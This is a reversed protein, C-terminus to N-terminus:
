KGEVPYPVSNPVSSSGSAFSTNLMSTSSSLSKEENFAHLSLIDSRTDGSESPSPNESSNTKIRKKMKHIKRKLSDLTMIHKDAGVNYRYIVFNGM